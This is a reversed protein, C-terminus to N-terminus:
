AQILEGGVKCAIAARASMMTREHQSAEADLVVVDASIGRVGAESAHFTLRGGSTFDIRQGGHARYVKDVKEPCEHEAVFVADSLWKGAGRGIYAVRKGAAADTVIGELTYRNVPDRERAM